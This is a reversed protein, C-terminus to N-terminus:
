AALEYAQVAEDDIVIDAKERWADVQETYYNNEAYSKLSSDIVDKVDEYPLIGTTGEVRKVIFFTTVDNGDADKSVSQVSEVDGVNMDKALTYVAADFPSDNEGIAVGKDGELSRAIDSANDESTLFSSFAEGGQIKSLMDQFKAEDTTEIVQVFLFDEPIYLFPIESHGAAVYSLNQAYDGETYADQYYTKAYEDYLGKLEEEKVDREAAFHERLKEAYTEALASHESRALFTKQNIGMSSFYSALMTAAYSEPTQSGASKANELIQDKLNALADKASQAAAATEEATLTIGLDKAMQIYVEADILNNLIDNKLSQMGSETATDYYKGYGYYMAYMNYTSINNYYNYLSSAYENRTIKAGNVTAIAKSRDFYTDGHSDKRLLMILGAVLIIVVLAAVAILLIKKTQRKM